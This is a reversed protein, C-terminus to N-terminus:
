MLVGPGAASCIGQSPFSLQFPPPLQNDDLQAAMRWCAGGRDGLRLCISNLGGCFGDGTTGRLPVESVV